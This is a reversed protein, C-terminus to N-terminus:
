LGLVWKLVPYPDLKLGNQTGSMLDPLGLPLEALFRSPDLVPRMQPAEFTSRFSSGECTYLFAWNKPIKKKELNHFNQFGFHGTLLKTFVRGFNPLKQSM